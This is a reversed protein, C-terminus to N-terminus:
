TLSRRASNSRFHWYIMASLVAAFFCWVSFFTVTYFWEAIAFSILGGIGIFNITKHSSVFCSGGTIILYVGLMVLPYAYSYHYSISHSVIRATIPEAIIFYLLYSGLIIGAIFFFRLISQRKREPEILLLAFPGLIPWLVQAFLAYIYTAITNILSTGFSIWVVGEIIQQIGFLLPIVALPLERRTKAHSVTLVGVASLAGGAVFSATASFCM